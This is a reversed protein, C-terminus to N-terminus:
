FLYPIWSREMCKQICEMDYVSNKEGDHTGVSFFTGGLFVM